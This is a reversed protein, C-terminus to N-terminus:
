RVNMIRDDFVRAGGREGFIKQLMRSRMNTITQPSLGTLAAIESPLFRLRILLCVCIEKTGLSETNYLLKQLAPLYKAVLRYLEQWDGEGAEKGHAALNHMHTVVEAQMLQEQMNLAKPMLGDDQYKALRTHLTEIESMKESIAAMDTEQQQQLRSIELWTNNYSLMDASYRDNLTRISRRHWLVVIMILVALGVVALLILTVLSRRQREDHDRDYQALMNVVNRVSGDVYMHEYKRVLTKNLHDTRYWQGTERFYNILCHHASVCVGVDPSNVAEYWLECARDMDGRAAHIDGLAKKAKFAHFYIDDAKELLMQARATDKRALEYCGKNAYTTSQLEASVQGVLPLCLRVYHGMSDTKGLTEFMEAMCNMARVKLEAKGSRRAQTLAKRYYALASKVNGAFNNMWGLTENLDFLFVPSDGSHATEEAEKVLPIAKYFYGNKCFTRGSYLLAQALRKRDGAKRYHEVCAQGCSDTYMLFSGRGAQNWDVPSYMGGYIGLRHMGRMLVLQYLSNEAEPLALSSFTSDINSVMNLKALAGYPDDDVIAEAEM